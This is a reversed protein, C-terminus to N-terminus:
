ISKTSQCFIQFFINLEGKKDVLNCKKSWEWKNPQPMYSALVSIFVHKVKWKNKFAAREAFDLLKNQSSLSSLSNISIDITM